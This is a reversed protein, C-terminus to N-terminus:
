MTNNLTFETHIRRFKEADKLRKYLTYIAKVTPANMKGRDVYDVIRKLNKPISAILHYHEAIVDIRKFEDISFQRELDERTFQSSGVKDAAREEVSKVAHTFGERFKKTFKMKNEESFHFIYEFILFTSTGFKSREFDGSQDVVDFGRILMDLCRFTAEYFQEEENLTELCFSRTFATDIMKFMFSMDNALIERNGRKCWKFIEDLPTFEFMEVTNLLKVLVNYNFGGNLLTTMSGPTNWYAIYDNYKEGKKAATYWWSTVTFFLMNNPHEENAIDHFVRSIREHDYDGNDLEKVYSAVSENFGDPAKNAYM